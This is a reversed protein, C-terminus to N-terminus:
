RCPVMSIVASCSDAVPNGRARASGAASQLWRARADHEDQEDQRFCNNKTPRDPPGMLLRVSAATLAFLAAGMPTALATTRHGKERRWAGFTGMVAAALVPSLVLSAGPLMPEAIIREPWLFGGLGGVAAGLILIGIASLVPHRPRGPRVAAGVSHLGLEFAIEALLEGIVEFILWLIAEVLIEM